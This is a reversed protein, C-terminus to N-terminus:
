LILNSNSNNLVKKKRSGGQGLVAGADRGLFESLVSVRWLKSSCAIRLAFLHTKLNRSFDLPDLLMKPLCYKGSLTDDAEFSRRGRIPVKGSFQKTFPYM